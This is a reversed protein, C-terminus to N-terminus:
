PTTNARWANSIMKVFPTYYANRKNINNKYYYWLINSGYYHFFIQFPINKMTPNGIMILYCYYKNYQQLMILKYKPVINVCM